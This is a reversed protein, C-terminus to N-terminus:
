RPVFAGRYLDPAAHPVGQITNGSAMSHAAELRIVGLESAITPVNTIVNDSITIANATAGYHAYTEIASAGGRLDSITNSAVRASRVNGRMVLYVNKLHNDTVSVDQVATHPGLPEIQIPVAVPGTAVLTNGSMVLGQAVM